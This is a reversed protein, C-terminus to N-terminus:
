LQMSQTGKLRKQTIERLQTLSSKASFLCPVKHGHKGTKGSLEVKEKAVEILMEANIETQYYLTEVQVGLTFVASALVIRIFRTAGNLRQVPPGGGNVPFAHILHPQM